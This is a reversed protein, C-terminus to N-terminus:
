LGKRRKADKADARYLFVLFLIFLIFLASLLVLGWPTVPAMVSLIIVALANSVCVIPVGWAMFTYFSGPYSAPGLMGYLIILVVNIVTAITAVLELQEVSLQLM